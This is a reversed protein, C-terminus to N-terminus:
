LLVGKLALRHIDQLEFESPDYFRGNEVMGPQRDILPIFGDYFSDLEATMLYTISGIYKIGFPWLKEIQWRPIIQYRSKYVIGSFKVNKINIRAEERSEKIATDFIDIGPELSGGPIIYSREYQNEKKNDYIFVKGHYVILVESRIRYNEGNITSVANATDENTLYNIPYLNQNKTVIIEM